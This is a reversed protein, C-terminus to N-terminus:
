PKTQMQPTLMNTSQDKPTKTSAPNLFPLELMTPTSWPNQNAIYKISIYYRIPAPRQLYAEWTEIMITLVDQQRTASSFSDIVRTNSREHCMQRLSRTLNLLDTTANQMKLKLVVSAWRFLWYENSSSDLLARWFSAVLTTGSVRCRSVNCTSDHYKRRRFWARVRVRDDNLDDSKTWIKPYSISILSCQENTSRNYDTLKNITESDWWRMIALFISVFQHLRLM